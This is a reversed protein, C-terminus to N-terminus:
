LMYKSYKLYLEEEVFLNYQLASLFEKELKKIRRQSIGAVKAYYDLNYNLDENFKLSVLISIFIIRHINYYTLFINGFNCLRDIYILALILTSKEIHSYYIIRNIYDEISVVPIKELSFPDAQQKARINAYLKSKETRVIISHLLGSIWKSILNEKEFYPSGEDTTSGESFNSSM